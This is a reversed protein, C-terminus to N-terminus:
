SFRTLQAALGTEECAHNRLDARLLLVSCPAAMTLAAPSLRSFLGRLAGDTPPSDLVLLSARQQEATELAIERTNGDVARAEVSVRAGCTERLARCVRELRADAWARDEVGRELSRLVAAPSAEAGFRELAGQQVGVIRLTSGPKWASSQLKLAEFPFDDLREVDLVAVIRNGGGAPAGGTRVLEVPCRARASVGRAVSGVGFATLLTRHRPAGLIALASRWEESAAVIEDAPVGVRTRVRVRSFSHKERLRAALAAAATSRRSRSMEEGVVSLVDVEVVGGDFRAGLYDSAALPDSSHDVAVLIKM